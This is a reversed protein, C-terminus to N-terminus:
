LGTEYHIKQILFEKWNSKPDSVKKILKGVGKDHPPWLIFNQGEINKIWIKPVVQITPLCKETDTKTFEIVCFEKKQAM